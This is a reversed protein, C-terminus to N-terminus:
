SHYTSPKPFYLHGLLKAVGFRTRLFFFRVFKVELIINLPMPFLNLHRKIM